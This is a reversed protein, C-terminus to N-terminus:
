GRDFYISKGTVSLPIGIVIDADILGMKKAAVGVRYMVRNDVNYMSAVKVASGLAVGMDVARWACVPGAFEPGEHLEPLDVCKDHGCAGCNLGCVKADKLGILVCASSAAVNAGDRDYNKKGSTKGYEIMADALDLLAKGEVAGTVVFDQGVAKPATRAAVCMLDAVLKIAEKM